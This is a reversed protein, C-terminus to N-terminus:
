SNIAFVTESLVNGDAGHRYVAGAFVCARRPLQATTGAEQQRLQAGVRMPSECLAEGSVAKVGSVASHEAVQGGGLALGLLRQAPRQPDVAAGDDRQDIVELLAPEGLPAAVRVVPACVREVQRGRPAVEKGVEFSYRLLVLGLQQRGEVGRLARLEDRNELANGVRLAERRANM